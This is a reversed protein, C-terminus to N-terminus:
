YEHPYLVTTVAEPSGLGDTIIWLKPQPATTPRAQEHPALTYASLVRGTDSVRAEENALKDEDDLDGDDGHLHRVLCARAALGFSVSFAADAHVEASVAITGPTQIPTPM